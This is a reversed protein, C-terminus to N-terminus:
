LLVKVMSKRIMAVVRSLAPDKSPKKTGGKDYGKEKKYRTAEDMENKRVYEKGGPGIDTVKVKIKSPDKLKVKVMPKKAEKIGKTKVGRKEKHAKHRKDMAVLREAPDAANGGEGTHRVNRISAKGYNSRGREQSLRQNDSDKQRETIM